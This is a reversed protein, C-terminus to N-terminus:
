AGNSGRAEAKVDARLQDGGHEDSAIALTIGTAINLQDNAFIGRLAKRALLFEHYPV